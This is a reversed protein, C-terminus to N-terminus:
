KFQKMEELPEIAGYDKWITPDYKKINIFKFNEEKFDDITAKSVEQRKMNMYETKESSSGEVKLDFKVVDKEGKALEIFKIPRNFYFYQGTQLSAYKMFYGDGIPNPQYILTGKSLNVSIKVGLLLKMNFGFEKEGEELTYDTRLVAYDNESVYIKGTYKAKSKRPKFSIVYVFENKDNYTAGEYVYDYMEPKNIYNLRKASLINNREIYSDLFKRSSTM